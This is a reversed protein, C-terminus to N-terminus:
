RACLPTPEARNDTDGVGLQGVSNFGWCSWQAGVRACYHHGGMVLEDFNGPMETPVAANQTGPIVEHLDGAGWCFYRGDAKRACASLWHVDYTTWDTDPSIMTPVGLTDVNNTGTSNAGGLVLANRRDEERVRCFESPWVSGTRIRESARRHLSSRTTPSSAQGLTNALDSGWCYLGGATDVACSKAFGRDVWNWTGAVAGVCDVAGTDLRICAGSDESSLQAINTPGYLTPANDESWYYLDGARLGYGAQYGPALMTWGDEGERRVPFGTGPEVVVGNANGTCWRSGEAGLFCTSQHGLYVQGIPEAECM